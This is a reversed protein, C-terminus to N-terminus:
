ALRSSRLSWPYSSLQQIVFSLHHNVGVRIWTEANGSSAQGNACDEIYQDGWSFSPGCFEPQSILTKCLGVMQSYTRGQVVVTGGRRMDRVAGGKVIMFEDDITYRINGSPNMTRPDIDPYEPHTVSCDSFTPMRTLKGAQYNAYLREWAEWEIRKLYEISDRTIDSMDEPFSTCSLTLSRWQNHDYIINNLLTQLYVQHISKSQYGLDVVLDVDGKQVQLDRLIGELVSQFVSPEEMIDEFVRICVGTKGGSIIPKLEALSSNRTFSHVVPIVKLGKTLCEKTLRVIAPDSLSEDEIHMTDLFFLRNSGLANLIADTMGDLHQELTRQPRVEDFNWPIPPIEILPTLRDKVTDTCNRLATQEGRKWKLIPVYHDYGIM